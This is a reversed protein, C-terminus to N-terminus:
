HAPLIIDTGKKAFWCGKGEIFCASCNGGCLEMPKESTCSTAGLVSLPKEGSALFADVGEHTLKTFLVHSEPLNHKNEINDDIWRSVIIHVNKPFENTDLFENLEKTNKTFFMFETRTHKEALAKVFPFDQKSLDGGVNIRLLLIGKAIINASVEEWFREIDEKHIASNRARSMIVRTHHFDHAMDYCTRKCLACNKCDIVPLLSVTHVSAGTKTNGVGVCVHLNDVGNKILGERIGKLKTLRTEFGNQTMGIVKM